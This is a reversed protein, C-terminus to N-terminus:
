RNILRTVDTQFTNQAKRIAEQAAEIEDAANPDQISERFPEPVLALAAIADTLEQRIRTDLEPNADKVFDALSPGKATAGPLHGLYANEVSRINNTFDSLSNYAFQSEVLEPDKADYPDAIKGNAVEDLINVIGGVMEQAANQVSPYFTNGEEGANAFADRYPPRGGVSQTWANALAAGIDKLQTSIAKLYAFERQTFDQVTKEAGTSPNRAFLLYEVTHFGKLTDELNGVYEPTFDRNGALVADLDSRNVPWSDLAPDYGFSDVPGFLFGESQEWPVRADFWAKRAAALREATPGAALATSATDLAELRAALQQYTPVVVDDAFHVIIEKDFADTSPTSDDDGCSLLALAGTLALPRLWSRSFLM